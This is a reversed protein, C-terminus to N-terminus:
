GGEGMPRPSTSSSAPRSGVPDHAIAIAGARATVGLKSYIHEAHKKVTLPSITLSEAIEANSRGAAMLELVEAERRTLGLPRLDDASPRPRRGELLLAELEGHGRPPLYRIRLRREGDGFVRAAAPLSRVRQLGVWSGLPEPLELRPGLPGVSTALRMVGANLRVPATSM